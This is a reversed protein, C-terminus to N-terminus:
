RSAGETRPAPVTPDGPFWRRAAWLSVYVLGVLVPVEILPGVVGALAQGSTVGFTGIAVAIALEFNNGAATFALTATKAYGLGLRMGLLFSGGFMLAFYALLPLAIRAVDWPNSTIADGQLAFLMVITFLLGYLAVPGIKPLFRGEYWDRGKAREGITRTLFGALLPIGLFVLVSLVIAWFSFEASTTSLGLWGPLVQLYFWGLVAFALIQFVSNIAVLVAGAERDGCSLDNWILVMAICRALGVIILGTRYEPLDPLLLWALAFMLAPGVLWNLALSAGLLKRDGTVRDLESYRVKALVPYMMLLLGIAIPLSVEGVRVADLADDLGPVFRGLLLGLVMAAVIWVPLFRDLTSLRALVPTELDTGSRPTEAALDSM